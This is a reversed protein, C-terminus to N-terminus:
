SLYIVIIVCTFIPEGVNFMGLLTVYGWAQPVFSGSIRRCNSFPEPLFASLYLHYNQLLLLGSVEMSRKMLGLTISLTLIHPLNGYGTVRHLFPLPICVTDKKVPLGMDMSVTTIIREGYIM